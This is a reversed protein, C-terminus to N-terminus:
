KRKLVAGIEEVYKNPQKVALIEEERKGNCCKCVPFIIYGDSDDFGTKHYYGGVAQFYDLTEHCQM